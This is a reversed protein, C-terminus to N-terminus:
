ELGLEKREEMTLKAFARMKVYTEFFYEGKKLSLNIWAQYITVQIPTMHMEIIKLLKKEIYYASKITSRGDQDLIRTKYIKKM